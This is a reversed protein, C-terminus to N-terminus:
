GEFELDPSLVLGDLLEVGLPLFLRDEADVPSIGCGSVGGLLLWLGLLAAIMWRSRGQFADFTQM